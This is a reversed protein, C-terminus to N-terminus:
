SPVGDCAAKTLWLRVVVGKPKGSQIELTGEHDEAVLRAIELGLGLGPPDFASFFPQMAQGRVDETMGIGNDQVAICVDHDAEAFIRIGIDGTPATAQLANRLMALLAQRLRQVDIHLYKPANDTCVRCEDTRDGAELRLMKMTGSVFDELLVHHREVERTQGRAFARIDCVLALVAELSSLATHAADQVLTQKHGSQVADVIHTMVQLNNRIDHVIGSTLRGLTSLRDSNILQEQKKRLESVTQSLTDRRDLLTNVVAPLALRSARLRLADQITVRMEHPDWPKLLFRYVAGENIARYIPDVDSYATLIIRVIESDQKAVHTLLEVGTMGPMRQDAVVVDVNNLGELVKLAARGNEATHVECVEELVAQLVDLNGPEDDVVLVQRTEPYPIALKDFLAQLSLIENGPSTSTTKTDSHNTADQM